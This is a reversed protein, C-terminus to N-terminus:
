KGREIEAIREMIRPIRPHELGLGHGGITKASALFEKWTALEEQKKGQLQFCKALLWINSLRDTSDGDEDVFKSYLAKDILENFLAEAESYRQLRTLVQAHITRAMIMGVHDSAISGKAMELGNRIMGEATVHDGVASKLRALHLMALLTFPHESGLKTKRREYVFSIAELNEELEEKDDANVVLEDHQPYSMALEQLAALTELHDEGLTTRLGTWAARLQSTAEAYEMVWFLVQGLNLTAKLTKVHMPGYIRKMRALTATHLSRAEVWRGKVRLCSGLSDAVDLTLPDDEGFSQKCLEYADRLWKSAMAIESMSFLTQCLLLSLYIALRHDRGLRSATFGYAREQLERAAEYRGTEVYVLSFRVDQEAELRRYTSKSRSSFLWTYRAREANQMIEKDLAEKRELAHLIHPLLERLKRREEESQTEEATAGLMPRPISLALTTMSVQCWLAQHTTRMKPRRRVWEHVLSHMSYHGDTSDQISVLSREILVDLANRLRVRIHRELAEVHLGDPNRLVAPLPWPGTALKWIAFARLMRFLATFSQFPPNAGKAMNRQWKQNTEIVKQEADEKLQNTAAKILVELRINQFHFFSFVHLLEVADRFNRQRSKELSEYLVEYTSFVNFSTDEDDDYDILGNEDSKTQRRSHNAKITELQANYFSLYQSWQMGKLVSTGAHVLALPLCGLVRCIEQVHRRDSPAVNSQGAAKMLFTEAEELDLAGLEISKRGTNGHVRLTPNRTTILVCGKTAAPLVDDIDVHDTDLNDIILLWPLDCGELWRKAAIPNPHAGVRAAIEAYSSSVTKQSSGDVVFVGLFRHRFDLAFKNALETKGCGGLGYIVFRQQNAQMPDHFAMKLIDLQKERGSFYSKVLRTNSFYRNKVLSGDRVFNLDHQHVGQFPAAALPEFRPESREQSIYIPGQNVGVQFGSNANEFSASTM